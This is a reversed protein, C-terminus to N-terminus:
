NSIILYCECVDEEGFSDKLWIDISLGGGEPTLCLPQVLFSRLWQHWIPFFFLFIFVFYKYDLSVPKQFLWTIEDCSYMILYWIYICIYMHTHVTIYYLVSAQYICIMKTWTFWYYNIKEQLIASKCHQSLTCTKGLYM